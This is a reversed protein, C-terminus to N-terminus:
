TLERNASLSQRVWVSFAQAARGAALYAGDAIVDHTRHVAITPYRTVPIAELITFPIAAIAHHGFKAVTTGLEVAAATTETQQVLRERSEAFVELERLYAEHRHAASEVEQVQKKSRWMRHAAVGTGVAAIAALADAGKM